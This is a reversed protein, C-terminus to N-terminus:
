RALADTGSRGETIRLWRNREVPGLSQVAGTPWQIQVDDARAARGLGFTLRRDSSSLYSSGSKVCRTMMRDGVRVQVRAGIADRNSPGGRLQLKLWGNKRDGDNRLLRAPGGNATLLLDLSGENDYDGYAAGRGVQPTTLAPGAARTMDVYKGQGNNRFLLAPEAYAVGTNRREIDDMVHGDAVFIDLWGDLDADFFFAGFGLYLQSPTGVGAPAADDLYQGTPDKRYLSIQEGAFNTMLISENGNNQDDGTDIGMGAKPKGSEAVAVGLETAVEQFTGDGQNHYVLTPETDNSVALDPWGDGDYDCVAAGLSKSRASQVGARDTVDAFRGRGQNHYLRCSEGPYKEPTTYSKHIGDVSWYVDTEPTWKVYHCVFLDLLGDRDYDLWAASTPWGGPLSPSVAPRPSPALPLPGSAAEPKRSPALEFHRGGQNHFLYVGGLATVALDDFGDNDWDGVAVGMGYLPVDLGMSATVDHFRGAGDNRYLAM